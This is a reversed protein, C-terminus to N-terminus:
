TARGLSGIKLLHIEPRPLIKTETKYYSNSSQLPNPSLSAEQDRGISNEYHCLLEGANNSFFVYTILNGFDCGLSMFYIDIDVFM